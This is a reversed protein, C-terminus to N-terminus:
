FTPPMIWPNIDIGLRPGKTAAKGSDDPKEVSGTATCDIKGKLTTEICAGPTTATKHTEGAFAAGSLAVLAALALATKKM